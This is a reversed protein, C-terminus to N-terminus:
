EKVLRRGAEIRYTRPQEVIQDQLQAVVEARRDDDHSVLERANKRDAVVANKEVRLALGYNRFAVRLVQELIAFIGAHPSEQSASFFVVFRVLWRPIMPLRILGAVTPANTRPAIPRIKAATTTNPEPLRNRLVWSNTM